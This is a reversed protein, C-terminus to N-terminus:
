YDQIIIKWPFSFLPDHFRITPGILDKQFVYEAVSSKDDKGLQCILGIESIRTNNKM